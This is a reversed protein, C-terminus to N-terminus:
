KTQLVPTVKPIWLHVRFPFRQSFQVLANDPVDAWGEQPGFRLENFTLSENSWEYQKENRNYHKYGTAVATSTTACTTIVCPDKRRQLM